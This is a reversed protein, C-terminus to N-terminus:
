AALRKRRAREPEAMSRAQPRPLARPTSLRARQSRHDQWAQAAELLLCLAFGAMTAGAYLRGDYIGNLMAILVASGTLSAAIAFPRFKRRMDASPLPLRPLTLAQPQDPLLTM